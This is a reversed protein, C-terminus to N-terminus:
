KQQSNIEADIRALNRKEVQYLSYLVDRNKEDVADEDPDKSLPVKLDRELRKIRDELNKRQEKLAELREM